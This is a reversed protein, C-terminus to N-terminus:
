PVKAAPAAVSWHADRLQWRGDRYEALGTFYGSETIQHGEPDTRIEVYPAAVVALTPTLPDVRINDGWRLDIQRIFQTLNQIWQGEPQGNPFVLQGESAMFFASEDALHKRWATPGEATVDHAVGLMFAKVNAEVAAKREPTLSQSDSGSDRHM